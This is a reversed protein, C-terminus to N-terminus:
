VNGISRFGFREKRILEEVALMDMQHMSSALTWPGQWLIRFAERSIAKCIVLLNEESDGVAPSIVHTHILDRSPPGVRPKIIDIIAYQIAACLARKNDYLHLIFARIRDNESAFPLSPLGSRSKYTNDRWGFMTRIRHRNPRGTLNMLALNRLDISCITIILHYSLNHPKSHLPWQPM